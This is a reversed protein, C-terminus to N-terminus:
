RETRGPDASAAADTAPDSASPGPTGDAAGEAANGDADDDYSRADLAERARRSFLYLVLGGGVVIMVFAYLTGASESLVISSLALIGCLGYILLVADRHSLGLDLLRHHFHGRDPTFPSRGASLRRIIIWFTDIIPVGLVLLAVAIKATGLIALCALAFGVAYVGTTGIFVRAPNFNWPLFGALAGALAACLLAVVPEVNWPQGIMSIIGLTTAAILTVGTSLGDLGDVFNISNIMGVVWLATVLAAVATLEGPIPALVLKTGGLAGGLFGLPNVLTSITIAGAIAVGALLLQELLQWRARVQWRDDIFGFVAALIVGGMLAGVQGPTIAQLPNDANFWGAFLRGSDAIWWTVTGVVVFATAVALGGARPIPQRHVRRGQDPEDIAGTAKAIRIAVPTLLYSVIAAIVLAALITGLQEPRWSV